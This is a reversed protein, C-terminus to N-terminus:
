HTACVDGSSPPVRPVALLASCAARLIQNEATDVDFEDYTVDVPLALGPRRRVQEGIQIRGRVVPLSDEVVRYGQLLGQALAREVQRALAGAVAPVLDDAEDLPVDNDLWADRRSSYGMLFLLRAIQVKPRIHLEVGGVSIAGVVAGASILWRDGAAREVRLGEIARLAGAEADTLSAEAPDGFEDITVRSRVTM